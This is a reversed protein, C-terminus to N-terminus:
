VVRKLEEEGLELNIGDGSSSNEPKGGFGQLSFNMQYTEGACAM